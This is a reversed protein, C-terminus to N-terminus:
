VLIQAFNIENLEYNGRRYSFVEITETSSSIIKGSEYEFSIDLPPHFRDTEKVKTIAVPAECVQVDNTENVFVLDLV